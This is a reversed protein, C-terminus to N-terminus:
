RGGSASVRQSVSLARVQNFYVTSYVYQSLLYDILRGAMIQTVRPCAYSLNDKNCQNHGSEQRTRASETLKDSGASVVSTYSAITREPSAELCSCLPRFVM